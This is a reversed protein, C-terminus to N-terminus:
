NLGFKRALTGLLAEELTSAAPKDPLTRVGNSFDDGTPCTIDDWGEPHCHKCFNFGCVKCKPGNHPDDADRAFDDVEDGHYDDDTYDEPWRDRMTYWTHKM